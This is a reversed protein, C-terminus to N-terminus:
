RNDLGPPQSHRQSCHRSRRGRRAREGQPDLVLVRVSRPAPPQTAPNAVGAPQGGSDLPRSAVLLTEPGPATQKRRAQSQAAPHSQPNPNSTATEDQSALSRAAVGASTAVAGLFLLTLAALKLKHILMSRLVEQTLIMTSASLTDVASPGAAFRTAARATADLSSKHFLRRPRSPTSSRPSCAPRRHYVWPALRIRLLERARDLRRRLTRDSCRLLHAVEAQPRGELDCLVVAARCAQPLRAVEEHVFLDEERRIVQQELWSPDTSMGASAMAAERAKHKRRRAARKKFTQAAHHATGYLWNGLLEPRRITRAKRALVLFTAQFVDDADNPDAVLSRCARRVMPGHRSVLAAFATEAAEGRRSAFRELLQADTLGAVTGEAFLTRLPDSVPGTRGVNM